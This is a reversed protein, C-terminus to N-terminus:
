ILPFCLGQITKGSRGDAERVLKEVLIAGKGCDPSTWLPSRVIAVKLYISTIPLSILTLHLMICLM